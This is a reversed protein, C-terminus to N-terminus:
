IAHWSHAHVESVQALGMAVRKVARCSRDYHRHEYQHTIVAGYAKDLTDDRAAAAVAAAVAAAARWCPGPAKTPVQSTAALNYLLLLLLM